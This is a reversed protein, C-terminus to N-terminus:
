HITYSKVRRRRGKSSYRRCTSCSDAEGEMIKSYVRPDARCQEMGHEDVLTQCLVASWQRGTQKIRYLARDLKFVNGTKEGCGYPLKMYVDTDLKVQVHGTM